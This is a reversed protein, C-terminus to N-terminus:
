HVGDAALHLASWAELYGHGVENVVGQEFLLISSETVYVDGFNQHRKKQNKRADSSKMKKIFNYKKYIYM